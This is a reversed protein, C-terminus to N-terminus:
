QLDNYKVIFVAGIFANLPPKNYKKISLKSNKKANAIAPVSVGGV